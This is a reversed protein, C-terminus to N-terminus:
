AGEVELRRVDAATVPPSDPPLRFVVVGDIEQAPMSADLGRRVLDSLTRGLSQRRLRAQLKALEFMDDDLTATTRMAVTHRVHHNIAVLCM